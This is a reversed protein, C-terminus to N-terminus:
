FAKHISSIMVDNLSYALPTSFSLTLMSDFQENKPFTNWSKFMQNKYGLFRNLDIKLLSCMWEINVM